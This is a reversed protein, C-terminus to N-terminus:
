TCSHLSSSACASKLVNLCCRNVFQSQDFYESVQKDSLKAKGEFGLIIQTVRRGVSHSGHIDVDTTGHVRAAPADSVDPSTLKESSPVAGTSGVYIGHSSLQCAADTSPHPM